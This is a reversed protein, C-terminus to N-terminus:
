VTNRIVKQIERSRLWNATDTNHATVLGPFLVERKLEINRKTYNYNEFVLLHKNVNKLM